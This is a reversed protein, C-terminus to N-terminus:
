NECGQNGHQQCERIITTDNGDAASIVAATVVFGGVWMATQKEQESMAEWAACSSVVLCMVILVFRKM